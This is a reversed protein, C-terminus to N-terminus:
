RRVEWRMGHSEVVIRGHEFFRRDHEQYGHAYFWGSLWLEEDEPTDWEWRFSLTGRDHRDRHCQECLLILAPKVVFQGWEGQLLLSGKSRPPEHHVAFPRVSKGCVQCEPYDGEWHTADIRDAHYAASLNPMAYRMVADISDHTDMRHDYIM